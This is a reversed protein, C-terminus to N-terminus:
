RVASVDGSGATCDIDRFVQTGDPAAMSTSLTWGRETIQRLTPNECVTRALATGPEEGDIERTADVAQGFSVERLACVITVRDLRSSRDLQTPGGSAARAAFNRMTECIRIDSMREVSPLTNFAAPVHAATPQAIALLLSIM